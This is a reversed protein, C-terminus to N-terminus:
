IFKQEGKGLINFPFFTDIKQVKLSGAGVIQELVLVM